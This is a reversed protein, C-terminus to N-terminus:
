VVNGAVKTYLFQHKRRPQALGEKRNGTETKPYDKCREFKRLSEPNTGQHYKTNGGRLFLRPNFWKRRRNSYNRILRFFLKPIQKSQNKQVTRTGIILICNETISQTHFCSKADIGTRTAWTITRYASQNFYKQLTPSVM